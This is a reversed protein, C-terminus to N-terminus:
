RGYPIMGSMSVRNTRRLGPQGLTGRMLFRPNRSSYRHRRYATNRRNRLIYRPLRHRVRLRAGSQIRRTELRRAGTKVQDDLRGRGLGLIRKIADAGTRAARITVARVASTALRRAELALNPNMGVVNAIYRVATPGLTEVAHVGGVVALTPPVYPIMAM